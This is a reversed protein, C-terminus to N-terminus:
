KKANLVITFKSGQDIKSEVLIKANHAELIDKVVTLGLGTGTNEPADTNEIRYFKDFIQDLKDEPIGVGKDEVEIYILDEDQWLRVDIEKRDRSYKIANSLLNIIAQKLADPDGEGSLDEEIKTSVKFQKEETWYELDAVASRILDSINVEVFHYVLKGKERKSFDLINNILRKLRETEKLIIGLYEKQDSETKVRGLLISEAFMYISTLPTKLEHTVNSVFDSRLQSLYRERQIDKIILFVGLIMGGILLVIAIGYIWSTRSIQAALLNEDKLKIRYSNDPAIPSWKSVTILGEESTTLDINDYVVTAEYEYRFEPPKDVLISYHMLSDLSITFGSILSSDPDAHIIILEDEREQTGPIFYYSDMAPIARARRGKSIYDEILGSYATLFSMRNRIQDIFAHVESRKTVNTANGDLWVAVEDILIYTSYNLPIEGSAIRSLVFSTRDLIANSNISDSLNILQPVAYNIYFLGNKDTTHYFKDILMAYYEFAQEDDHTKAYLRAIANIARASDSEGGAASLARKYLLLARSYKQVAFENREADSISRKFYASSTEEGAEIDSIFVPWLFEGQRDAIFPNDIFAITDLFRASSHNEGSMESVYASFGSSVEDLKDYFNQFILDALIEEEELVRRESLEQLNTINQISLYSLIGGPITVALIFIITLRSFPKLKIKM